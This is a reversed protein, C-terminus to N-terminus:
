PARQQVRVLRAVQHAMVEYAPRETPDIAELHESVTAWDGRQIPGTIAAAPGLDAVSELAARALYLYAALPVGAQAGVREAQGLLAVLHNSAIAAAAHYDARREEPVDIPRGGLADVIERAMPDGAVAFWAGVLKSAGQEPSTLPVLPHLSARREHPALATLRLAGSLHVVVTSRVPHVRRAVDAVVRDPTTIALVDVDAAVETLDSDRGAPEAIEWGARALALALAGGARGPGIVRLRRATVPAIYRRDFIV